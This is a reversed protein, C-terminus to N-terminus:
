WYYREASHRVRKSKQVVAAQVREVLVTGHFFHIVNEMTRRISFATTLNKNEKWQHVAPRPRGLPVPSSFDRSPLAGLVLTTVM